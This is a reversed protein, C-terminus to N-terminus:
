KGEVGGERGREGREAGRGGGEGGRQGGGGGGGRREAGRGGGWAVSRLQLVFCRLRPLRHFDGGMLVLTHDIAEQLQGAGWGHEEGAPVLLVAQVQEVM